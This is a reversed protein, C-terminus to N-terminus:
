TKKEKQLQILLHKKGNYKQVQPQTVLNNSVHLNGFTRLLSEVFFELVDICSLM